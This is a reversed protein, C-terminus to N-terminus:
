FAQSILHLFIIKFSPFANLKSQHLVGRMSTNTWKAYSIDVILLTLSISVVSAALIYWVYNDFPSIITLYNQTPQPARALFHFSTEGIPRMFERDPYDGKAYPTRMLM